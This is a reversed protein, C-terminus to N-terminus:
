HATTIERCLVPSTHHIGVGKSKEVLSKSAAQLDVLWQHLCVITPDTNRVLTRQFRRFACKTVAPGGQIGNRTLSSWTNSTCVYVTSHHHTNSHLSLAILLTAPYQFVEM